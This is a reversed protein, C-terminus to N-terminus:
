IREPLYEHNLNTSSRLKTITPDIRKTQEKQKKKKKEKQSFNPIPWALAKICKTIQKPYPKKDKPNPIKISTKLKTKKKNKKYVIKPRPIGSDEPAYRRIDRAIAQM